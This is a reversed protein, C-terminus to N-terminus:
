REIEAAPVVVRLPRAMAPATEVEVEFTPKLIEEPQKARFPTQAARELWLKELQCNEPALAMVGVEVTPVMTLAEEDMEARETEIAVVVLEVEVLRKEVLALKLM